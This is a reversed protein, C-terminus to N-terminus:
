EKNKSKKGKKLNKSKAWSEILRQESRSIALAGPPVDQTITSGAGVYAGKKVRVPAVLQTDSGIFVDEEIVTKHKRVGDYNCTITGAGVNVNRGIRADGIYSLHQAKSGEGITSAKVEVYNGIRANKLIKTGPRLRAFPGIVANDRVESSELISADKIIVNAGIRSDIIRVNPYIVCGRGILTNEEICVNPYIYTGRGIMVDPHIYVKEEDMFEVDKELWYKV